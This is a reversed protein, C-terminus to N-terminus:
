KLYKDDIQRTRVVKCPSGYAVVKSVIDKNVYSAGGIVTDDGVIIGHKIITGISIATRFGIQIGGGTVVGPACSAFDKIYSNHDISVSSNIICFSGIDSSPGVNVKPMVITGEGIKCSLGVVSSQHILSPFRAKPVALKVDHVIKERLSNQGVAIFYYNDRYTNYCAESSIIPIGMISSNKNDEDVYAIVSYGASLAVSTVSEAHGGAGIIILSKSMHIKGLPYLNNM